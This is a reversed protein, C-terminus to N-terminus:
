SSFAGGGRNIGVGGKEQVEKFPYLNIQQGQGVGPSLLLKEITKDVFGGLSVPKLSSASSTPPFPQASVQEHDIVYLNKVSVSATAVPNSILFIFSVACLLGYLKTRENLNKMM